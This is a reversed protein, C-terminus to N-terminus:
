TLISSLVVNSFLLMTSTNAITMVSIYPVPHWIEIFMIAMDNTIEGLGFSMFM